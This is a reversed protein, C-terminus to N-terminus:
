FFFGETLLISFVLHCMRTKREKTIINRSKVTVCVVTLLQELNGTEAQMWVMVTYSIFMRPDNWFNQV